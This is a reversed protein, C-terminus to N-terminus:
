SGKAILTGVIGLVGALLSSLVTIVVTTMVPQRNAAFKQNEDMKDFIRSLNSSHKEEYKDQDLVVKDIREKQALCFQCPQHYENGM